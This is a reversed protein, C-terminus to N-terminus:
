AVWRWLVFRIMFFASLGSAVIMYARDFSTSRGCRALIIFAPFLVLAYRPMSEFKGWATLFTYSLLAYLGYSLRLRAAAAISLALSVVAFIVDVTADFGLPEQMLQMFPEWPWKLRGWDGGWTRQADIVALMNGFRWHFYFMHAAASLPIAALWLIDAKIDRLRYQRQALYEILLPIAILFGPSRGITAAGALLGAILWQAKRAHYFAGLVVLLFVSESYVASFFFSTPFVLLYLVARAATGEDFDIRVLRYLYFLALLLAANSAIVGSLFWSADSNSPSFVHVARMLLPYLPFFAANSKETPSFKYGDQAVSRYWNSDWRCWVNLWPYSEPTLHPSTDVVQGSPKIEWVGQHVPLPLAHLAIWGVTLLM